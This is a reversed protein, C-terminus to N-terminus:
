KKKDNIAAHAAALEDPRVRLDDSAIRTGDFRETAEVVAADGRERVDDFLQEISAVLGPEFIAATSRALLRAQEAADLAAWRRIALIGMIPLTASRPVPINASWTPGAARGPGSGCRRAARAPDQGARSVTAM